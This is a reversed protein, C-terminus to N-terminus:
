AAVEAGEVSRLRVHDPPISLQRGGQFEVRAQDRMARRQKRSDQEGPKQWRYEAPIPWYILTGERWEQWKRDWWWVPARDKALRAMLMHTAKDMTQTEVM